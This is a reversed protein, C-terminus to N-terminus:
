EETSVFLSALAFVTLMVIVLKTCSLGDSVIM